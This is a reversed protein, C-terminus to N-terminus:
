RRSPDFALALTHGSTAAHDTAGAPPVQGRLEPLIRWMILVCAWPTLYLCFLIAALNASMASM